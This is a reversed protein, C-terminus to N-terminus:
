YNPASTQAGSYIRGGRETFFKAASSTSGDTGYSCTAGRTAAFAVTNDGLLSEVYINSCNTATVAISSATAGANNITVTNLFMLSSGHNAYVGYQGGSASFQAHISIRSGVVSFFSDAINFSINFIEMYQVNTVTVTGAITVVDGTIGTLAIIGNGINQITVNETYTGAAIYIRATYGNLNAPITSIAKNITAYPNAASGDGVSNSGATSVYVVKHATLGAAEQMANLNQANVPTGVVTPSDAREVTAYYASGTEPTIKMRNPYTPVRDVWKVAM